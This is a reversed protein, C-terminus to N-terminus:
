RTRRTRRTRDRGGTRGSRSSGRRVSSTTRFLEDVAICVGPLSHPTLVGDRHIIEEHRYKRARPETYVEVHEAKVDIIWYEPVKANAYIEKKAGRDIRLSSDSVEVILLGGVPRMFGDQAPVVAIDPEPMSRDGMRITSQCMVDVALHQSQLILLRLLRTTIRGHPDGIPSMAVLVGELLEVREDEFVGAEILREYEDSHLPRIREGRFQEIDVMTDLMGHLDRM